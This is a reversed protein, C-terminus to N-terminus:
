LARGTPTGTSSTGHRESRIRWISTCCVPPVLPPPLSQRMPWHAMAKHSCSRSASSLGADCTASCFIPSWPLWLASSFRVCRSCWWCAFARRGMSAPVRVPRQHRPSALPEDGPAIAVSLIQSAHISWRRPVSACRHRTPNLTRTLTLPNRAYIRSLRGALSGAWLTAALGRIHMPIDGSLTESITCLSRGHDLLHARRRIHVSQRRHVSSASGGRSGHAAVTRAAAAAMTGTNTTRIRVAPVAVKKESRGHRKALLRRM